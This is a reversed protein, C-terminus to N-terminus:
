YGVFVYLQLCSKVIIGSVNVEDTSIPWKFDTKRAYQECYLFNAANM